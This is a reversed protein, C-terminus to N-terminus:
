QRGQAGPLVRRDWDAASFLGEWKENCRRIKASALAFIPLALRAKLTHGQRLAGVLYFTSDRPAGWGPLEFGSSDGSDALKTENRKAVTGATPEQLSPM